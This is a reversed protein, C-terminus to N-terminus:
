GGIVFKYDKVPIVHESCDIYGIYGDKIRCCFLDFGDDKGRIWFDSEYLFVDGGRLFNLAIPYVGNMQEVKM